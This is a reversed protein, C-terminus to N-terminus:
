HSRLTLRSGACAIVKNEIFYSYKPYYINALGMPKGKDLFVSYACADNYIGGQLKLEETAVGIDLEIGINNIVVTFSNGTATIPQESLFAQYSDSTGTNKSVTKRDQSLTYNPVTVARFVHARVGTDIGLLKEIKAVRAAFNDSSNVPTCESARPVRVKRWCDGRYAGNSYEM